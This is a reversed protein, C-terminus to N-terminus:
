VCFERWFVIGREREWERELEGERVREGRRREREGRETERVRKRDREGERERERGREGERERERGREGERERERGREGERERERGREGERERERGREGERERERGREGERERERGREEEGLQFKRKHRCKALIETRSNLLRPDRSRALIELKESTCLDCTSQGVRYPHGKRIVSWKINWDTGQRKLEWVKESLKTDGCHGEHRFSSTHGYYRQKFTGGTMGVYHHEAGTESRLAALYVVGEVLCNGDLPCLNGRTCNCTRPSIPEPNDARVHKSVLNKNHAKIIRDMNKMCSYSVKVSNRNLIKHLPHSPPFHRDILHLFRRGIDTEVTVSYPPNYWLVKRKRSRKRGTAPVPSGDQYSLVTGSYGARDLAEEYYPKAASFVGENSSISNIRQNIMGPINNLITPPHNSLRHVYETKKDPKRYPRYSGDTRFTVDLFDVSLLPPSVVIKLGEGAFEQILDKRIREVRPGSVHELMIRGDDRYLGTHSAPLFSSMKQLLYLGVLECVEAGDPAGMTVDFLNTSNKRQWPEGTPSFLLSKRGQKIVAIDEPPITVWSQAWTLARDLLSESISPYFSEIDFSLFRARDTSRTSRFWNINM